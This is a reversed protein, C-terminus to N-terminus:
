PSCADEASPQSSSENKLRISIENASQVVLGILTEENLKSPRVDDWALVLAGVIELNEGFVPAAIGVVGPDLQGRSIYYGAERIRKLNKTFSTWDEGIARADPAVCPDQLARDYVRRLKRRNMHALVIHAQAGRFTPMKLGKTYTIKAPDRGPVHFINVASEDYLNCLLANCHTMEALGHMLDRSANLVPDNTHILYELEIIKPGLRYCGSSRSLMGADTLESAYRYASATSIELAAAIENINILPTNANFLDLISMVRGIVSPSASM